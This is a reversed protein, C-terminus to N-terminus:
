FQPVLELAKKKKEKAAIAAAKEQAQKIEMVKTAEPTLASTKCLKSGSRSDFCGNSDVKLVVGQMDGDNSPQLLLLKGNFKYTFNRTRWSNDSVLQITVTHGSVFELWTNKKEGNPLVYTGTYNGTLTQAPFFLLPPLPEGGGKCYAKGNITVPGSPPNRQNATPQLVVHDFTVARSSGSDDITISGKVLTNGWSPGARGGKVTNLEVNANTTGPPEGFANVMLNYKKGVYTVPGLRYKQFMAESLYESIFLSKAAADASPFTVAYLGTGYAERCGTVLAHGTVAGTVDLVNSANNKLKQEVETKAELATNYSQIAATKLEKIGTNASETKLRYDVLSVHLKAVKQGNTHGPSPPMYYGEYPTLSVYIGMVVESKSDATQSSSNNLFSCNGAPCTLLSRKGFQWTYSNYGNSTVPGYLKLLYAQQAHMFPAKYVDNYDFALDIQYAVNGITPNAFFVTLVDGAGNQYVLKSIFSQSQASIGKYNVSTSSTIVQPKGYDHKTAIAEVQAVTMGIRIGSVSADVGPYAPVLPKTTQVLTYSLQHATAVPTMVVMALLGFFVIHVSKM